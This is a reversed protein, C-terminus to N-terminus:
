KTEIYDSSFLVLPLLLYSHVAGHGGLSVLITTVVYTRNQLGHFEEVVPKYVATNVYGRRENWYGIQVSLLLTM